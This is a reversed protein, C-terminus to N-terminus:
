AQKRTLSVLIRTLFQAWLTLFLTEALWVSGSYFLSIPDQERYSRDRSDICHPMPDYILSKNVKGELM